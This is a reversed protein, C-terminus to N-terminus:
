SKQWKEVIDMAKQLVAVKDDTWNDCTKDHTTPYKMLICWRISVYWGFWECNDCIEGM